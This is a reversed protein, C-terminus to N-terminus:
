QRESNSKTLLIFEQTVAMDDGYQIQHEKGYSDEIETEKKLYVSEFKLHFHSACCHFLCQLSYILIQYM